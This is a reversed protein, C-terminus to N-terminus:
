GVPCSNTEVRNRYEGHLFLNGRYLNGRYVTYFYTGGTLEGHLFLNGKEKVSFQMM